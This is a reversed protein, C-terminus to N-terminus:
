RTPIEKVGTKPTWSWHKGLADTFNIANVSHGSSRTIPEYCSSQKVSVPLDWDSAGQRSSEVFIRGPPVTEIKLTDSRQNGSVKLIVEHFVSPTQGENSIVVGWKDGDKAWWAQLAGALRQREREREREDRERERADEERERALDRVDRQHDRDAARKAERRADQRAERAVDNAQKALWLAIVTLVTSALSAIAGILESLSGIEM